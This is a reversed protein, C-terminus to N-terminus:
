EPSIGAAKVVDGWRQVESAIYQGFDQSTGGVIVAGGETLRKSVAPEALATNFQKNLTDIIAQDTGAPAVVGVWGRLDIDPFGAEALTPVDPLAAMREPSSVALPRVKGSAVATQVAASGGLVVDIHGGMLDTLAFGVSKYPTHEIDVGARSKLFEMGLHAPAGSGGSGYRLEGPHAKAYDILEKLTQVPLDARVALIPSESTLQIVPAFSKIVDFPLNTKLSPALAIQLNIIGLTYGDPDARAVEGMGIAGQAGPKNEVVLAEGLRDGIGDTVIRAAVDSPASPGGPVIVRIARSPWNDAAQVYSTCALLSVAALWAKVAKRKTTQRVRGANQGTTMDTHM